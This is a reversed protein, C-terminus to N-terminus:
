GPTQKSTVGLEQLLKLLKESPYPKALFHWKPSFENRNNNGAYGSCLIIPLGPHIIELRRAADIGGLRPMVVDLIAAHITGVHAAAIACVEEGDVAALVRYGYRRLLTSTMARVVADDEALLICAGQKAQGLTEAPDEEKRVVAPAESTPLLVQFRSGKGPESDAHVFGGHQQVIGQVVALGLGTGAGLPKTTFFPEFIHALTERSMGIGTDSVTLRVFLGAKPWLLQTVDDASYRVHDIDLALVGGGPMADRANVCLNLVVQELQAQDAKTWYRGHQENFRVEITEGIIRRLLRLMSGVLSSLDLTTFDLKQRRGFALLQRTLEAAKMAAGDIQELHEMIEARPCDEARALQIGARIVQLINNFDHAVGGALTGVAEMKHAQRLQQELTQQRTIDRFVLVVGVMEDSGDLIPAASDAILHEQGQRHQLSIPGDLSVPKGTELVRGIPNPATKSSAGLSLVFVESYHRGQAERGLWGTLSEAVPNMRQICGELDTVVVGDGISDLTIRLNQESERLSDEARRMQIRSIALILITAAQALLAALVGILLGRHERWPSWRRHVIEAKPPLLNEDIEFRLLQRDDLALRCLPRTVVPLSDVSQGELVQRVVGGLEKGHTAGDLLYGGVIGKGLYFSWPGYLPARCLGAAIAVAEDYSRPVGNADLNWSLLLVVDKTPHLKRLEAETSEFSGDGLLLTQIKRYSLSKKLLEANARGTETQDNVVVLRQAGPHLRLALDITSDLDITEVVGTVGPAKKGDWYNVGGFVLPIGPQIQERNKLCFQYAYDDVAILVKAQAAKAKSAVNVLMAEERGLAPFRKVDLQIVVVEAQDKLSSILGQNVGDTWEMGVHYSHVLLVKPPTPASRLLPLYCLVLVTALLCRM